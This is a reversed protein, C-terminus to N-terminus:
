SKRFYGHSMDASYIFSVKEPKDAFFEDCAQKVGPLKNWAEPYADPDAYDDIVCIAGRSLRPYVHELSV